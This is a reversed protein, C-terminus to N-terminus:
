AGNLTITKTYLDDSDQSFDSVDASGVKTSGLWVSVSDLYDDLNDSGTNGAPDFSVKISKLAIDGDNSAEIDAGLVKVASDGEAVDENNYSGLETVDSISGDTGALGAASSGGSCSAGTTSSFGVTSTCGAPLTTSVTGACSMGTTTSYGVTSTCGAPLTTTSAACSMGTTTSYGVNSTCGAPYTGGATASGSVKARTIPGFYGAAPSIGVKAQYAALAAQTQAGFFGTAGAPISYGGAILWSQLATVDAGTSGITLDRTFTVSQAQAPAAALAMSAFMALGAAVSVIKSISTASTM